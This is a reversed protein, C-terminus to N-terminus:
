DEVSFTRFLVKNTIKDRLAVFTRQLDNAFGRDIEGFYVNKENAALVLRSKDNANEAYRCNFSKAGAPLIEGHEFYASLHVHVSSWNLPLTTFLVSFSSTSHNSSGM